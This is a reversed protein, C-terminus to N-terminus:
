KLVVNVLDGDAYDGSEPFPKPQITGVKFSGTIAVNSGSIHADGGNQPATGSLTAIASSDTTLTCILNVVEQENELITIERCDSAIGAFTGGNYQTVVGPSSFEVLMNNTVNETRKINIKM